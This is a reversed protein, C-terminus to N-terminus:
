QGGSGLGQGHECALLCATLDAEIEALIAGHLQTEEGECAPDGNCAKLGDRHRTREARTEFRSKAECDHRCGKAPDPTSFSEGRPSVGAGEFRACEPESAALAAAAVMAMGLWPGLQKTRM